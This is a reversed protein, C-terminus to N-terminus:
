DSFNLCPANLLTPGIQKETSIKTRTYKEKMVNYNTKQSLKPQRRVFVKV